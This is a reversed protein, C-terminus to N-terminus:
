RKRYWLVGFLGLICYIIEFGPTSLNEKKPSSTNGAQESDKEIGSEISGHQEPNENDSPNEILIKKATIAFPSFEPTESTFYLYRDDESLLTAPLENWKKDSYRNLIISSQDIDKDEVWSKKVRFCVIANEINKSTAYGSNGVWINLYSYVEGQPEDPTLTSKNKLMEVITTTKGITKKPDFSLHVIATVNKPFDFKTPNGNTIFVQSLEKVEVNRAPEPSGGGGGGGGSGGSGGSEGDLERDVVIQITKEATGNANIATLKATYTGEVPYVYTFSPESSDQIGDCNFDWSRSTANKSLDTFTVSLPAYGGTVSASFDAEPVQLVCIVATKSDMGNENSVKLTVTYNGAVSYTHKPNNEKSTNGDGIDGFNWDWATPYGTSTDTFQVTLPVNGTTCDCTFNAVPALPLIVKITQLTSHSSVDNTVTLNATYDGPTTYTHAINASSSAPSNDGFDLIEVTQNVSHDVFIVSEGAYVPNPSVTFKATVDSFRAPRVWASNGLDGMKYFVGGKERTYNLISELRSTSTEYQGTVTPTITHGYLVLVQHTAIAHDIGYKISELSVGRGEDIEIGYLLQADDWDYYAELTQNVSRDYNPVGTRLTRFYPAVIADTTLNRDSYPYALTYVPYGYRTIEVINPYIEQELWETSTHNSLFLRSNTHNYGHAAIEWGASHLADLENVLTQTPINSNSIKNVNVTCMANYQQFISLHKYCTDIHGTDDWSLAIGGPGGPARIIHLDNVYLDLVESSNLTRNYAYFAYINGNLGYKADPSSGITWSDANNSLGSTTATYDVGKGFAIGNIYLQAHSGDYTVIVEYEENPEIKCDSHGSIIHGDVYIDYKITSDTHDIIIRCADNGKSVLYTCNTPNSYDYSFFVGFTINPDTFALQENQPIVIRNQGDFHRATQGTPLTFTTSGYNMGDNGNGSNDVVTNETDECWNYYVLQNADAYATSVMSLMFILLLGYKVYRKFNKYKM